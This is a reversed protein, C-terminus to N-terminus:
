LSPPVIVRQPWRTWYKVMRTTSFMESITLPFKVHELKHRKGKMVYGNVESFLTAGYKKCRGMLPLLLLLYCYSAGSLKIEEPLIFGPKEEYEQAGARVM